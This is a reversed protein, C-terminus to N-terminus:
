LYVEQWFTNWQLCFLPLALGLLAKWVQDHNQYLQSPSLTIDTSYQSEWLFALNCGEFPILFWCLYQQSQYSKRHTQYIASVFDQLFWQLLQCNRGYISLPM